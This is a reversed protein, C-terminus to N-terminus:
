RKVIGKPSIFQEGCAAGPDFENHRGDISLGRRKVMTRLKSTRLVTPRNPQPPPLELEVVGGGWSLGTGVTSANDGFLLLCPPGSKVRLMTPELKMELELTCQFAFFTGVFNTLLVSIV